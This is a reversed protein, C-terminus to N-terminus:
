IKNESKLLSDLGTSLDSGTLKAGAASLAKYIKTEEDNLPQVVTVPLKELRQFSVQRLISDWHMRAIGPPAQLATGEKGTDLFAKGQLVLMLLDTTPNDTKADITMPLGPAHRGFIELGVKTGPTQLILLWSEDRIRLRVKAEGNKKLNELVILGRAFTLDLD